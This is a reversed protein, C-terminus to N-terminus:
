LTKSENENVQQEFKSNTNEQNSVEEPEVKEENKVVVKKRLKKTLAQGKDVQIRQSQEEQDTKFGSWFIFHDWSKGRNQLVISIILKILGHHFVSQKTHNQHDRVRCSMKQLSKLFFFPLNMKSEDSLHQLFRFHYKLVFSYRGECTVYSQLVKILEIWDPKFNHIPVGKGWDAIVGPLLYKQANFTFPVKKFWLEGKDQIGTAEAILEKTLKFKLTDFSVIDRDLCQAFRYSM